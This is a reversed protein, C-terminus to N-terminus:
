ESSNESRPGIASDGGTGRGVQAFPARGDVSGAEEFVFGGGLWKAIEEVADRVGEGIEGGSGGESEQVAVLGAKMEVIPPREVVHEEQAGGGYWVFGAGNLVGRNLEM